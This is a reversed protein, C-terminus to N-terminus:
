IRLFVQNILPFLASEYWREDDKDIDLILSYESVSFGMYGVQLKHM